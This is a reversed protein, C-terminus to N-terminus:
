RLVHFQRHFVKARGQSAVRAIGVSQVIQADHQGPLALEVLSDGAVLRSQFYDVVPGRVVVIEAADVQVLAIEIEFVALAFLGLSIEVIGNM